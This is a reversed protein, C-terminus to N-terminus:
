ARRRVEDYEAIELDAQEVETETPEASQDEIALAKDKAKKPMIDEYYNPPLIASDLVFQGTQFSQALLVGFKDRTARAHDVYLRCLGHNMEEDTASHTLTVDATHVQSWDEGVHSSRAHQSSYGERNLQDATALALNREVAIARLLETNEGLAIRRDRPDNSFKMLKAYDIILLDPTFADVQELQDLYAELMNITLRRNPFRRILLNGVSGGLKDLHTELELRLEPSEMDFKPEVKDPETNVCNGEKDFVLRTVPLLDAQWRAVGWLAQYYRMRTEYASLELTLHLVQKGARMARKGLNILWWSKGRGKGAIFLMLEGRTPVIHAEDLPAIGTSFEKNHKKLYNLFGDLSDDLRMGPELREFRARLAESMLREAEAINDASPPRQLVEAFSMTSSKLFQHRLFLTLGDLVFQPNVRDALAAFGTLWRRYNAAKRPEGQELIDAFLNDSHHKPPQKYKHWYALVRDAMARYESEFHAPEVLGAIIKGTDENHLLLALLDEQSAVSLTM